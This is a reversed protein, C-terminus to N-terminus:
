FISIPKKTDSPVFLPLGHAATSGWWESAVDSLFQRFIGKMDVANDAYGSHISLAHSQQFIQPRFLGHKSETSSKLARYLQMLFFGSSLLSPEDHADTHTCYRAEIASERDIHINIPSVDPHFSSRLVKKKAEFHIWYRMRKIWLLYHTPVTLHRMVVSLNSSFYEIVATFLHRGSKGSNTDIEDKEIPNEQKEAVRREGHGKEESVRGCVSEIGLLRQCAENVESSFREEDFGEEDVRIPPASWDCWVTDGDLSGTVEKYWVRGEATGVVTAAIGNVTVKEGVSVGFRALAAPDTNISVQSNYISM